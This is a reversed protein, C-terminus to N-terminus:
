RPPLEWQNEKPVNRPTSTGTIVPAVEEYTLSRLPDLVRTSSTYHMLNSNKNIDLLGQGHMLEHATVIPISFSASAEEGAVVLAPIQLIEDRGLGVIVSLPSVTHEIPHHNVVGQNGPLPNAVRGAYSTDITVTTDTKSIVLFPEWVNGAPFTPVTGQEGIVYVQGVVIDMTNPMTLVTSGVSVPNSLILNTTIPNNLFDSLHHIAGLQKWQM